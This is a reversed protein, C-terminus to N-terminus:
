KKHSSMFKTMWQSERVGIILCSQHEWIVDGHIRAFIWKRLIIDISDLGDITLLLIFRFMPSSILFTELFSTLFIGEQFIIIFSINVQTLDEQLYKWMDEENVIANRKEDFSTQRLCSRLWLSGSYGMGTVRIQSEISDGSEASFYHEKFAPLGM